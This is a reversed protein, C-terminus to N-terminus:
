KTPKTPAPKPKTDTTDYSGRGFDRAEFDESSEPAKPKPPPPKGTTDYTGRGFVVMAPIPSQFIGM